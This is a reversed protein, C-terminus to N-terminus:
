KKLGASKRVYEEVSEKPIKWPRGIRFGYLQKSSLLEYVRNKGIHLAESVDEISMIDDYENFM